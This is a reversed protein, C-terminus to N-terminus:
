IDLVDHDVEILVELIDLVLLLSLVTADGKVVQRLRLVGLPEQLARTFVELNDRSDIFLAATDLALVNDM